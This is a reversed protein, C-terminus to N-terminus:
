ASQATRRGVLATLGLAALGAIAMSITSPEPVASAGSPTWHASILNVDFIDVTGDGNADATPGAEGWHASVLNVDFIDVVGDFNVDGLNALHDQAFQSVQGENFSYNIEGAVLTAESASYGVAGGGLLVNAQGLFQRVTLDNVQALATYNHIVLDGIPIGL